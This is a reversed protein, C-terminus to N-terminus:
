CTQYNRKGASERGVATEVAATIQQSASINIIGTGRTKIIKTVVEEVIHSGWEEVSEILLVLSM